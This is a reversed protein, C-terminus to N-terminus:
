KGGISEAKGTKCFFDKKILFLVVVIIISYKIYQCNKNSSVSGRFTFIFPIPSPPPLPAISVSQTTFKTKVISELLSIM